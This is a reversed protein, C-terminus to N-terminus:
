TRENYGPKGDRRFDSHPTYIFGFKTEWTQQKGRPHGSVNVYNVKGWVYLFKRLNNLELYLQPNGTFMAQLAM